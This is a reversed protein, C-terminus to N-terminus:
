APVHRVIEDNPILGIDLFLEAYAQAHLVAFTQDSASGKFNALEQFARQHKALVACVAQAAKRHEERDFM